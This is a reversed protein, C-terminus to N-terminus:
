RRKVAFLADRFGARRAGNIAQKITRFTTAGDAQLIVLAAPKAKALVAAVAATVDDSIPVVTGEVQLETRTVVIKPANKLADTGSTPAPSRPRPVDEGTDIVTQLLGAKIALDMMTIVDQYPVADDAAVVVAGSCLGALRRLDAEVAPADIAGSAYEITIRGARGITVRDAALQITVDACAPEPPPGPMPKTSPEIPIETIPVDRAPSEGGGCACVLVCIWARM